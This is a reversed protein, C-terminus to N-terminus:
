QSHSSNLRTSKRDIVKRHEAPLRGICRTSHEKLIDLPLSEAAIHVFRGNSGIFGRGYALGYKHNCAHTAVHSSFAVAEWTGLGDPTAQYLQIHCRFNVSDKSLLKIRM